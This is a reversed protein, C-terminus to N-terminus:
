NVLLANSGSSSSKLIGGKWRKPNGYMYGYIRLCMITSPEKNEYYILLFDFPPYSTDPKKIVSCVFLSLLLLHFFYIVIYM